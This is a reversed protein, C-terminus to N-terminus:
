GYHIEANYNAMVQKIPRNYYKDWNREEETFSQKFIYYAKELEVLLVDFNEFYAGYGCRGHDDESLLCYQRFMIADPNANYLVMGGEKDTYIPIWDYLSGFRFLHDNEDLNVLLLNELLLNEEKCCELCYSKDNGMYFTSYLYNKCISCEQEYYKSSDLLYQSHNEFCNLLKDKRENWKKSGNAIAIEETKEEYCLACMDKGCQCRYCISKESVDKVDFRCYDCTRYHPDCDFHSNQIYRNRREHLTKMEKVIEINTLTYLDIHELDIHGLSDLNPDVSAKFVDYKDPIKVYQKVCFINMYEDEIGLSDLYHDCKKDDLYEQRKIEEHNLDPIMNNLMEQLTEQYPKQLNEQHPKQLTKQNTERLSPENM